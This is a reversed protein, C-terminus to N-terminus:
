KNTARVKAHILKAKLFKFRENSIWADGDNTLAIGEKQSYIGKIKGKEAIRSKSKRFDSLWWIKKHSLLVIRDNMPDRAAGTVWSRYRHTHALYLSDYLIATQEGAENALAYIYTKKSYPHTRNKTFIFLSDHYAIMAEADFNMKDPTPPYSYQNEYRFSIIEATISDEKISDPHAIKYIIFNPKKNGNNGIDAIYLHGEFDNALDEWDSNTANLIKVKRIVRAMSDLQYLIAEGGSDNHTWVTNNLGVALGSSEFLEIPLKTKFDPEINQAKTDFSYEIM